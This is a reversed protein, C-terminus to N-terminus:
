SSLAARLGERTRSYADLEARVPEIVRSDAVQTISARLAQGVHRARQRAARRALGPFLAALAAGLVAGVVLLVTPLSLGALDPTTPETFRMFSMVALVLLWGAGVVALIVLLWHLANVVRWWVPSSRAARDTGVIAQDMADALDASGAAAAAHVAAQWPPTLGRAAADAAERVCTDVRARQVGTAEPLPSRALPTGVDGGLLQQEVPDRRRRDLWRTVPWGTSANARQTLSHELAEVVVSVGAVEALADVLRDREPEGLTPAPAVGSVESLAEAARGVDDSLRDVAASKDNIRKTLLRKLEDVGQETTASTALLPVGVLGDQDLLRRVDAMTKDRQSEAIEDIHNLVVIMVDAHSSLPRLYDDHIAADAYKQPDLIWVFLDTHAVLRDVELHHSVETSDHDPLDLLLLGPLATDDPTDLMSTRSVQHRPPIGLWALIESAGEGGWACALAWSTTPRKIGVAALDLGTIRNFLSSKGSGTAGGLAVITHDVSLHLRAHARDVVGAAQDVVADDLRGRASRAAQELGEIRAAVDGPRGGLLRHASEADATM